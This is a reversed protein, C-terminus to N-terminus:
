GERGGNVFTEISRKSQDSNYYYVKKNSASDIITHTKLSGNSWFTQQIGIEKGNEDYHHLYNQKGDKEYSKWEGTKKGNTYNGQTKIVGKSHYEVYPGNLFGDVYNEVRIVE